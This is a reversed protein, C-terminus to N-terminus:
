ISNNICSDVNNVVTKCAAKSSSITERYNDGLLAFQSDVFDTVETMKENIFKVLPGPIYISRLILIDNLCGVQDMYEACIAMTDPMSKIFNKIFIVGRLGSTVNQLAPGFIADSSNTLEELLSQRLNYLIEPVGYDNAFTCYSIDVRM